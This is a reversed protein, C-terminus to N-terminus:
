LSAGRERRTQGYGVVRTVADRARADPVVERQAEAVADHAAGWRASHALAAKVLVADFAPEPMGSGDATRLGDFHELLHGAHHGALATAPSTGTEFATADLRGSLGPSAVRVGPPRTSSVVSLRRGGDYGIGPEELLTQRGGDMLLDPKVARRIGSGMASIVSPLDPLLLPDLM